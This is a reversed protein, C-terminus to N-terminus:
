RPATTPATTTPAPSTDITIPDGNGLRQQGTIVVDGAKEMGKRVAVWDDAKEGLQVVHEVAKGDKTTFVRDVGAFSVLAQQPVFVVSTDQGIVVVGRAFAGPRLLREANPVLVEIQFTRSQVDVSPNIRSVRGPFAQERGDVRVHVPQDIKLDPIFREPVSARFKIPDDAVLEFMADGERVYEGESVNRSTVAYVRSTPQTTPSKTSAPSGPARVTTDDLRQMAADLDSQRARAMALQSKAELQAVSYDREAVEYATELDAYDQESILPPKSQFLQRARDLKAKANAAQFKAREVTAIAIVEFNAAPLESLGLKALAENLAMKRQSVALDYDTPDIQALPQGATIRDGVDVHFTRVRGPVKASITAQEDGFLTGVVEVVRDVTRVQAPAVRVSVPDRPAQPQQPGKGGASQGGGGAPAPANPKGEKDCGFVAVLLLFCILVKVFPRLM